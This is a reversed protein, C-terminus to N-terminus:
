GHPLGCLDLSVDWLRKALAVDLAAASPQKERCKDFYKGTVQALTPETAVFLSTAAGKAPSIMLPQMLLAALKIYWRGSKGGIETRVVGPHLSNATVGLRPYRRGFENAFLVNCLKSQGYSTTMSYAQAGDLDDFDIKGGYHSGSSVMVIRSPAAAELSPLLLHTLLFPGLHNTAFVREHGELTKQFDALFVGANNILVDLRPYRELFAAAFRRVEALSSLDLAMVTVQKNGTTAIIDQQASAGKDLSRCAMVVTAGMAALGRATELGIGVNAGTVLCIKGKM